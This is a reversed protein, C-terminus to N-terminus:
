FSRITTIGSGIQGEVVLRDGRIRLVLGLTGLIGVDDDDARLVGHGLDVLGSVCAQHDDVPAGIDGALDLGFSVWSVLLDPHVLGTPVAVVLAAAAVVLGLDVLLAVKVVLYM